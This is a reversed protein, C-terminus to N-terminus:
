RQFQLCFLGDVEPVPLLVKLHYGSPRAKMIHRVGSGIVTVMFGYNSHSSPKMGMGPVTASTRSLGSLIPQGCSHPDHYWGSPSSNISSTPSLPGSCYHHSHFLLIQILYM